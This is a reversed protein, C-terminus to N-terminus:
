PIAGHRMAVAVTHYFSEDGHLNPDGFTDARLAMAALLLVAFHGAPHRLM